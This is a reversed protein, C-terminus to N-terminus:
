WRVNEGVYGIARSIPEEDGKFEFIRVEIKRVTEFPTESVTRQWSWERGMLETTGEDAGTKPWADELQSELLVNGAAWHAYLRQQVEASDAVYVGILKMGAALAVAAVTLAVLVELLTFGASREAGKM